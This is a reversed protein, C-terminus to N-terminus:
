VYKKDKRSVWVGKASVSVRFGEKVCAWVCVRECFGERVCACVCVREREGDQECVRVCEQVWKRSVVLPWNKPSNGEFALFRYSKLKWFVPEPEFFKKQPKWTEVQQFTLQFVLFIIQISSKSASHKKLIIKKRKKMRALKNVTWKKNSGFLVPPLKWPFHKVADNRSVPRSILPPKQSNLFLAFVQGTTAACHYLSHRTTM